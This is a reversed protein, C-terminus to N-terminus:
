AYLREKIGLKARNLEAKANEFGIVFKADLFAAQAMEMSIDYVRLVGTATSNLPYTNEGILIDSATIDGAQKYQIYNELHKKDSSAMRDGEMQQIIPYLLKRHM